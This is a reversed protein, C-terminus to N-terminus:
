PCSRPPPAARWCLPPPHPSGPAPASRTGPSPHGPQNSYRARDREVLQCRPERGLASGLGSDGDHDARMSLQGHLLQHIHQVRDPAGPHRLHSHHGGRFLFSRALLAGEPPIHQDDGPQVHDHEAREPRKGRPPVALCGASFIAQSSPPPRGAAPCCALAAAWGPARPFAPASLGLFGSGGRGSGGVGAPCCSSEPGLWIVSGEGVGSLWAPASGPVWAWARLGVGLGVGFGVGFAVGLGVGFAVGFGLAALCLGLGAAVGLFARPSVKARFGRGLFLRLVLHWPSSSVAAM